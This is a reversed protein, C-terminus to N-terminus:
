PTPPASSVSWTVSAAGARLPGMMPLPAPMRDLYDSYGASGAVHMTQIGDIYSTDGAKPMVDGVEIPMTPLDFDGLTSLDVLWSFDQNTSARHYSIQVHVGDITGSGQFPVSVHATALDLTPDGLWPGATGGVDLGYSASAGPIRQAVWQAAGNSAYARVLVDVNPSTAGIIDTGASNGAPVTTKAECHGGLDPACRQVNVSTVTGALNTLSAQMDVGFGWTGGINVSAGDNLSIGPAVLFGVVNQADDFGRVVLDATSQKCLDTSTMQVSNSTTYVEGCPGGLLYSTANPNSAFTVNVTQTVPYNLTSGITVSRGADLDRVTRMLSGGSFSFVATASAGPLVDAQADGSADTAVRAVLTGDPDVFVVPIGVAPTGFGPLDIVHVHVTSRADADPSTASDPSGSSADPTDTGGGGGCAVCFVSM